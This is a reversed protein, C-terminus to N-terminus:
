NRNCQFQLASQQILDVQSVMHSVFYGSLAYYDAASNTFMWDFMFGDYTNQNAPSIGTDFYNVSSLTVRSARLAWSPSRFLGSAKATVNALYLGSGACSTPTMHVQSYFSLSCNNVQSVGNTCLDPRGKICAKYSQQYDILTSFEGYVYYGSM